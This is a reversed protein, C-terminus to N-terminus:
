GMFCIISSCAKITTFWRFRWIKWEGGKKIFDFSVFCKLRGSDKILQDFTLAKLLMGAYAGFLWIPKPEGKGYKPMVSQVYTSRWTGKATEGDAAVEIM